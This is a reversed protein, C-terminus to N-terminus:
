SRKQGPKERHLVGVKFDTDATGIRGGLDPTEPAPNLAKQFLGHHIKEVKNALDFSREAQTNKESQAQKIFDPYMDTFEYTEGGIAEQIIPALDEALSNELMDVHLQLRQLEQLDLDELLAKRLGALKDELQTLDKSKVKARATDNKKPAM